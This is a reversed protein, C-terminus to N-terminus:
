GRQEGPEKIVRQRWVSTRKCAGERMEKLNKNRLV